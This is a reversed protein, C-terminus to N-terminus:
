RTEECKWADGGTGRVRICCPILKATGGNNQQPASVVRIERWPSLPRSRQVSWGSNPLAVFRSPACPPMGLWSPRRAAHADPGAPRIVPQLESRPEGIIGLTIESPGPVRGRYAADHEPAFASNWPWVRRCRNLQHPANPIP